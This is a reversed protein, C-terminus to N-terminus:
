LRFKMRVYVCSAIRRGAPGDEHAGRRYRNKTHEADTDTQKQARGTQRTKQQTKTKETETKEEKRTACRLDVHGYM